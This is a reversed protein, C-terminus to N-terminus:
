SRAASTAWVAGNTDWTSWAVATYGYIYFDEAIRHRDCIDVIHLYHISNDDCTFLWIIGIRGM